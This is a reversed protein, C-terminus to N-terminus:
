RGTSPPPPPHASLTVSPADGTLMRLRGGRLVFVVMAVCIGLLIMLALFLVRGVYGRKGPPRQLPPSPQFGPHHGSSTGDGRLMFPAPPHVPPGHQPAPGHAAPLQSPSPFPGAGPAVHAHPGPSPPAGYVPMRGTHMGASALQRSAPPVRASTPQPTTGFRPAALANPTGAVTLDENRALGAGQPSPPEKRVSVLSPGPSELRPTPMVPTPPTSIQDDSIAPSSIQVTMSDSDDVRGSTASTGVASRLAEQMARANPWRDRMEIELAKDVIDVIPKPVAPAASALSRARTTTIAFLQDRITEGMHVREGSLLTFITAGTLYVDTRGDPEYKGSAQEPSMFDPTGLMVGTRTADSVGDRMRAIGFDLLKVNGDKTLFINEPKVDRHVIKQEHAAALVDLLRDAIHLVENLPLCGGMRERRTEASEGDLLELVIFACGDETVDDDLVRVVGPHNVANAVYGERLFRKRTEPDQSMDHHLVKLAVRNGNRHHTAAYVAAM